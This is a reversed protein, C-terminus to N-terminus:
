AADARAAAVQAAIEEESITKAQPLAQTEKLLARLEASREREGGEEVVVTVRVRQGPKLALGGIVIQDPNEVTIYRDFAVM